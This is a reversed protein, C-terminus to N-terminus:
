KLLNTSFYSNFVKEYETDIKKAAANIARVEAESMNAHGERGSINFPAMRSNNTTDTLYADINYRCFQFQNGPVNASSLTIKATLVYRNNRGGSNFGLRGLAVAFANVIRNQSDGEVNVAVPISAAIKIAELRYDGGGKLDSPKLGAPSSGMVALLDAYLKNADAVTAALQYRSFAEFSNREAAPINTIENILRLNGRLLDAYLSAAKEKELVAVASWSRDAPNQWRDAIEAGILSDMRSSTKIAENVTNNQTVNIAGNNVAESFNSVTSVESQISQGFVATLAVFANRDAETSNSGYGVAAVYESESYVSYPASVWVPQGGRAPPAANAAPATRDAGGAPQAKGDAAPPRGRNDMAAVASEMAAKGRALSDEGSPRPASSACGVLLACVAFVAIKPM